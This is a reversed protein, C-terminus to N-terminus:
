AQRSGRRLRSFLINKAQQPIFILLLGTLIICGAIDAVPTPSYNYYVCGAITISLPILSKKSFSIAIYKKTDVARYILLAVYSIISSYIVGDVGLRRILLYNFLVSIGLTMLLSPLIKATRKACQYGIEFFASLAFAMVYFCNVYLYRSSEQYEAGVLWGYNLRIAFPLITVLICLLYLYANFIGSFFADRNPSHYQEIANQQWTQYFIVCLIYLIGSFRNALGYYGTDTLGLYHEIFFQNNASIMWWCLAVPILPLSYKLLERSLSKDIHRMRIYKGSLDLKRDIFALTIVKASIASIFIGEIGMGLGALLIVSLIATLSANLLGAAVFLKTHKLGRALQICVEYITQSIGYAVIYPLFRIPHIISTAVSLLIILTTNILLTRAIFSIIARHRDADDTEILFRFGGDNMQFCLLPIFCFSITMALEYIGYDTTSTIYHTYFPVLLFTILKSGLNGIAYIGLDKVFKKGRSTGKTTQENLM